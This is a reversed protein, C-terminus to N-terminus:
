WRCSRRGAAPSRQARRGRRWRVAPATADVTGGCRRATLPPSWVASIRRATEVVLPLFDSRLTAPDVRGAHACVSCRPRSAGTRTSSRPAAVSSLGEELQQDVIPGARDGSRPWSAGCSRRTSSRGTPTARSRRRPRLLGRARRRAPVALLVRGKSTAHAPLRSGVTVALTMLRRTQVRAVYLIETGDLVAVSASEGTRETLSQSTPSPSTGRTAQRRRVAQGPGPRGPDVLVDRRDTRRLRAGRPHAPGAPRHRADAGDPRRGRQDDPGPRRRQLRAPRGPRARAVTCAARQRSRPDAPRLRDLQSQRSM